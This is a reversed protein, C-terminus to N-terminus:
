VSCGQREYGPEGQLEADRGAPLHGAPVAAACARQAARDARHARAWRARGGCSRQRQLHSGHWRYYCAADPPPLRRSGGHCAPLPRSTRLNTTCCRCQQQRPGCGVGVQVMGRRRRTGSRRRRKRPRAMRRVAQPRRAVPLMTACASRAGHSLHAHRHAWQPVCCLWLGGLLGCPQGPPVFTRRRALAQAEGPEGPEDDSADGADDGAADAESTAAGSVSAEGEAAAAGAAKAAKKKARKKQAKSLEGGGDHEGGEEIEGAEEPEPHGVPADAGVAM